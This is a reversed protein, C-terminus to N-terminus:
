AQPPPEQKSTSTGAGSSPKKIKMRPRQAQEAPQCPPVIPYAVVATMAMSSSREYIPVDRM